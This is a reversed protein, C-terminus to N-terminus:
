FVMKKVFKLKEYDKLQWNLDIKKKKKHKDNSFQPTKNYDPNSVIETLENIIEIINNPLNFIYTLNKMDNLTYKEM